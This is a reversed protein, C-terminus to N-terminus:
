PIFDERQSGKSESIWLHFWFAFIHRYVLEGMNIWAQAPAIVKLHELPDVAWFPTLLGAPIGLGVDKPTRM